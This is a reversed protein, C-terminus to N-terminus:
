NKSRKRKKPTSKRERPLVVRTRDTPGTLSARRTTVDYIETLSIPGRPGTWKPPPRTPDGRGAGGPGAGSPAAM